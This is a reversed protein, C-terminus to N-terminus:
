KTTARSRSGGVAVTSSGSSLSVPLITRMTIPQVTVQVYAALTPDDTLNPETIPLDDDPPLSQLFQVSSVQANQGIGAGAVANTVLDRIAAQARAISDPRRDLEVAGALALADAASQMQTQVTMLRSGDLALAALGIIVGLMMAAYPLVVGSCDDRLKRILM